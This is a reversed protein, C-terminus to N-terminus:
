KDLEELSDDLSDKWSMHLQPQSRTAPARKPVAQKRIKAAVIRNARVAPPVTIISHSFLRGPGYFCIHATSGKITNTNHPNRQPLSCSRFMRLQAYPSPTHERYPSRFGKSEVYVSWRERWVAILCPSGSRRPVGCVCSARGCGCLFKGRGIADDSTVRGAEFGQGRECGTVCLVGRVDM